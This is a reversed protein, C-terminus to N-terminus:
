GAISIAILQSFLWESIQDGILLSITASVSIIPALAINGYTSKRYLISLVSVVIGLCSILVLSLFTLQIGLYFATLTMLKVDGGGLQKGPLMALAFFLGAAGGAAFLYNAFPLEHFLLQYFILVPFAIMMLKNPIIRKKIDIYSLILLFCIFTIQFVVEIM